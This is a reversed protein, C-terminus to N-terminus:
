QSVLHTSSCKGAKGRDVVQYRRSGSRADISCRALIKWRCTDHNPRIRARQLSSRNSLDTFIACLVPFALTGPLAKMV